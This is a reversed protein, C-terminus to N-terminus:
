TLYAGAKARISPSTIIQLQLTILKLTQYLSKTCTCSTNHIQSGTCKQGRSGPDPIPLFILIWIRFLCGPDHKPSSIFCNKPNFYKFEKIRVGPDPIRSPFFESVSCKPENRVPVFFQFSLPYVKLTNLVQHQAM